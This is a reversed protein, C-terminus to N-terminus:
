RATFAGIINYGTAPDFIPDGAANLSNLPLAYAAQRYLSPAPDPFILAVTIPGSPLAEPLAFSFSYTFPADVLQRLDLQALPIAIRGVLRDGSLLAVSAPRARIVRGYGANAMRLKVTMQGGPQAMGQIIAKGLEIRTGIKNYFSTACGEQILRAGISQPFIGLSISQVHYARSYADLAACTQMAPDLAGFEGVFMTTTSTGAAFARLEQGTLGGAPVFTGADTPSSDFYDDHIGITPNPTQSRLYDIVYAPRRVLVPFDHRFYHLEKNLVVDQNTVTDNGNTSDHWEGWTGIFGAELAFIIDRYKHLIPALQDIHTAILGIPADKAGPGIPGFNYTFRPMIRVGRGVYAALRSDIASLMQASLPGTVEPQASCEDLSVEGSLCIYIRIVKTPGYGFGTVVPPTGPWFNANGYPAGESTSITAANATFLFSLDVFASKAVADDACAPQTLAILAAAILSLFSHRIGMADM